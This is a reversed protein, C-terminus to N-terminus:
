VPRRKWIHKHIISTWEKREAEPLEIPKRIPMNKTGKQHYIGYPLDSGLILMDRQIIEVNGSAGSKTLSSELKGSVVLISRGPKRKAYEPSLPKWGGSGWGGQTAFQKREGAYFRKTIEKFAPTMDELADSFRSFRRQIQKEGAIEFTFEFM